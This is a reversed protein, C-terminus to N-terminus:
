EALRVKGDTLVTSVQKYEKYYIDLAGSDNYGYYKLAMRGASINEVYFTVPLLDSINLIRHAAEYNWASRLDTGDCPYYIYCVGDPMFHLLEGLECPSLEVDANNKQEATLQWSGYLLSSDDTEKSCSAFIGIFALIPCLVCAIRLIKKKM